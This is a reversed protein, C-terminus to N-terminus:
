PGVRLRAGDPVLRMSVAEPSTAVAESVSVAAGAVTRRARFVLEGVQEPLAADPTTPHYIMVTASGSATTLDPPRTAVVHGASGVTKMPPSTVTACPGGGPACVESELGVLSLAGAEWSLNFQMGAVPREARQFSLTLPCRVLAEAAGTLRCWAASVAGEEVRGPTPLAPSSVTASPAAEGPSTAPECGSVMSVVGVVLAGLARASM